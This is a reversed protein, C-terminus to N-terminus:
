ASGRVRHGVHWGGCDRPCEYADLDAGVCRADAQDRTLVAKPRRDANFCSRHKMVPPSFSLLPDGVRPPRIELVERGAKNMRAQEANSPEDLPVVILTGAGIRTLLGKVLRHAPDLSGADDYRGNLITAANYVSTLVRGSPPIAILSHRISEGESNQDSWEVLGEREQETLVLFDGELYERVDAMPTIGAQFVLSGFTELCSGGDTSLDLEVGDLAILAAKDLPMRSRDYPALTYGAPDDAVIEDVISRNLFMVRAGRVEDATVTSPDLELDCDRVVRRHLNEMERLARRHEDLAVCARNTTPRGEPTRVTVAHTDDPSEPRLRSGLTTLM